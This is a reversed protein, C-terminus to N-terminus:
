LPVAVADPHSSQGPESPSIGPEGSSGVTSGLSFDYTLASYLPTESYSLFAGEQSLILPSCFLGKEM